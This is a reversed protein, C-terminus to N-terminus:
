EPCRKHRNFMLASEGPGGPTALTQLLGAPSVGQFVNLTGLCRLLQVSLVEAKAEGHGGNGLGGTAAAVLPAAQSPRAVM